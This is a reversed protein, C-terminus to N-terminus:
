KRSLIFPGEQLNPDAGADSPFKKIAIDHNLRKDGRRSILAFRISKPKLLHQSQLHCQILNLNNHDTAIRISRDLLVVIM